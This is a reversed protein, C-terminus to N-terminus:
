AYGKEALQEPTLHAVRAAPIEAAKAQRLQDVPVSVEVVNFGHEDTIMVACVAFENMDKLIGIRDGLAVWMGARLAGGTAKKVNVTAAKTEVVHVRAVPARQVEPQFKKRLGFM